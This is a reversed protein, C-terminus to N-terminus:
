CKQVLGATYCKRSHKEASKWVLKPASIWPMSNEFYFTALLVDTDQEIFIMGSEEHDIIWKM